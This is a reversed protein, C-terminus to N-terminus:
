LEEQEFRFTAQNPEPCSKVSAGAGIQWTVAVPPYPDGDMREVRVGVPLSCERVGFRCCYEDDVSLCPRFLRQIRRVPNQHTPWTTSSWVSSEPVFAVDFRPMETKGDGGFPAAEYNLAVTFHVEATGLTNSDWLEPLDSLTARFNLHLSEGADSLRGSGDFAGVSYQVYGTQDSDGCVQSDCATGGALLAVLAARRLETL